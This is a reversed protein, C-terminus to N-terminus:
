GRRAAASLGRAHPACRGPSRPPAGPLLERRQIREISLLTLTFEEFGSPSSLKRGAREREEEGVQLAVRRQEACHGALFGRLDHVIVIPEEALREDCGASADYVVRTVREEGAELRGLVSGVPCGCAVPRQGGM